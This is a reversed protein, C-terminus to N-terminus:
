DKQELYRDIISDFRESETRRMEDMQYWKAYAKLESHLQKADLSGIVPTIVNNKDVIDDAISEYHKRNVGRLFAGNNLKIGFEWENLIKVIEEKLNM